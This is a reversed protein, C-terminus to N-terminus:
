QTEEFVEDQSFVPKNACCLGYMATDEMKTSELGPRLLDYPRGLHNTPHGETASVIIKLKM